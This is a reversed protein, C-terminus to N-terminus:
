VNCLGDVEYTVVNTADGLADEATGDMATDVETESSSANINNKYATICQHCLMHDPQVDFNKAKFQQAMDLIIRKSGQTKRIHIKLISCCKTAHQEFINGLVQEHDLCITMNESHHELM